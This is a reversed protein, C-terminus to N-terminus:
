ITDFLDLTGAADPEPFLTLAQDTTADDFDAPRMVTWDPATM